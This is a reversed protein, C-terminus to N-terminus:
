CVVILASLITIGAIYTHCASTAWRSLKRRDNEKFHKLLLRMRDKITRPLVVQLEPSEQQFAILLHAAMQEWVANPDAASYPDATMTEAILYADHRDNFQLQLFPNHADCVASETLWDWIQAFEEMKEVCADLIQSANLLHVDSLVNGKLAKGLAVCFKILKGSQLVIDVCLVDRTDESDGSVAEVESLLNGKVLQVAVESIDECSLCITSAKPGRTEEDNEQM